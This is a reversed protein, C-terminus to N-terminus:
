AGNTAILCSVLFEGLLLAIVIVWRVLPSPYQIGEEAAAGLSVESRPPTSSGSSPKEDEASKREVSSQLGTPLKQDQLPM